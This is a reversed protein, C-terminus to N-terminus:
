DISNITMIKAYETQAEEASLASFGDLEVIRQGQKSLVFTIFERERQPLPRDAAKNVYLYIYRSLPYDTNAIGDVLPSIFKGGETALKISKVGSTKYGIGSFGIGATDSSIAQIVSASGPLEIISRKYSGGCLGVNRFFDSSGSNQTRGYLRIPLNTKSDPLKGWHVISQASSCAQTSSFISDIQSLTLSNMPNDSHVFIALADLAVRISTPAYGWNDEFLAIEAKSMLRSMPAITARGSLLAPPATSSGEAHIEPKVDPHFTQFEESWFLILNAMTDSGFFKIDGAIQTNPHYTTLDPSDAAEVLFNVSSFSCFVIFLWLTQKVLLQGM